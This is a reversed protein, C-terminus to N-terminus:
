LGLFTLSVKDIARFMDSPPSEILLCNNSYQINTINSSQIQIVKITQTADQCTKLPSESCQENDEPCALVLSQLFPAINIYLGAIYSNDVELPDRTLYVKQAKTIDQLTTLPEVFISINDLQTPPASFLFTRGQLQTAWGQQTLIFTHGRYEVINQQQNNSGLPSGIIFGATSALFIFLIFLTILTKKNIPM